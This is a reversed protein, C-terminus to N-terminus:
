HLQGAQARGGGGREHCGDAVDRAKRARAVQDAIQATPLSRVRATGSWSRPCRASVRSAARWASPSTKSSRRSSSRAPSPARTPCSALSSTAGAPIAGASRSRRARSASTSSPWSAPAITPASSAARRRCFARGCSACCTTSSRRAATTASSNSSRASACGRCRRSTRSCSRSRRLSGISSRHAGQAHGMARPPVASALARRITDRYIGTRRHIERQSLREVHKMRRIEAWQEVGLLARGGTEITLDLWILPGTPRRWVRAATSWKQVPAPPGTNLRRRCTLRQALHRRGRRAGRAGGRDVGLGRGEMLQQVLARLSERVLEAGSPDELLQRVVEEATMRQMEAM